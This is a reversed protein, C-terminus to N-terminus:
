DRNRQGNIKVFCNKLGAVLNEVLTYRSKSFCIGILYQANRVETETNEQSHINLFPLCVWLRRNTEFVM